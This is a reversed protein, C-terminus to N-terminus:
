GLKAADEWLTKSFDDIQTWDVPTLEWKAVLQDLEGSARMAALKSDVFSLLGANGKKMAVGYPQSEFSDPLLVTNDDVYGMLIAKDVSFCAVRDSDLAAKIDPYTAFELFEVKLGAEGAAKTLADKTTASQAVGITKGDLDKFSAIGSDKKVLLGIADVFYPKSFDYQLIRDPKITFTAIVLDLEGTDLLPGRTKATVATFSVANEDGLLEKALAKAIDIELGEFDSGLEQYGFKPVDAKVGVRLKGNALIAAIAPDNKDITVASEASVALPIMAALLIALALSLLKKV